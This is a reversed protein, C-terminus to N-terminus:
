SQSNRGRRGDDGAAWASAIPLLSSRPRGIAV